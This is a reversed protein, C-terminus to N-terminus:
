VLHINIPNMNINKQKRKLHIFRLPLLTFPFIVVIILGGLLVLLIVLIGFEILHMFLIRLPHIVLLM